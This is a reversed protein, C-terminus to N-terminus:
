EKIKISVGPRVDTETLYKLIEPHGGAAYGRLGKNDWTSRVYGRRVKTRAGDVELIEGTEAVHLKIKKELRSLLELTPGLEVKLDRYTELAEYIDM